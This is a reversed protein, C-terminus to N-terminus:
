IVKERYTRQLKGAEEDMSQDLTKNLEWMNGKFGEGGEEEEEEKETSATPEEQIPSSAQPEKM